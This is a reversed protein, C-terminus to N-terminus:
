WSPWLRWCVPWWSRRGATFLPRLKGIMNRNQITVLAVRLNTGGADLVIVPVGEEIENSLSLYTPLMPLAGNKGELSRPMACSINRIETEDHYDKRGIETVVNACAPGNPLRLRWPISRKM